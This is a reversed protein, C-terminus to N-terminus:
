LPVGNFRYDDLLSKRKCHYVIKGNSKHCKCCEKLLRGFATMSLTSNYDDIKFTNFLENSSIKGNRDFEYHQNFWLKVPNQNEFFENTFSKVKESEFFNGNNELWTDLLIFFLANRYENQSITDKLTDDRFKENESLTQGEDKIFKFPLEVVKMRRKIAEDNTSLDLLDNLQMMLTFKATFSFTDKHLFRTTIVDRGTWKKLTPVKLTTSKGNKSDEPETAMVIRAFRCSALESNARQNDKEYDTLQNSNISKYYNGYVKKMGTDLLGKGNGGSGTLQAFIENKNEGWLGLSLLSKISKIQYPDDSLSNIIQNWKNIYNEDRTPYDYGCTTIIFDEKVIDRVIGNQLLDICKGDSFSFLNAKADFNDIFENPKTLISQIQAIVGSIFSSNGVERKFKTMEKLKKLFQEEEQKSLKMDNNKSFFYSSYEKVINCFFSSIPYILSIKDNNYSWIRTNKDFIIWGYGSTFFIEGKSYEAYIKALNNHTFDNVIKEGCEIIDDDVFILQPESQYYDKKKYIEKVKDPNDVKAQNVLVGINHDTTRYSNWHKITKNEDYYDYDKKSWEIFQDLGDNSGDTINYIVQGVLSWNSYTVNDNVLPLLKTMTMYDKSKDFSLSKNIFSNDKIKINDIIDFLKDDPQIYSFLFLKDNLSSSSRHKKLFRNQGYKTNGLMRISRNKSYISLDIIFKNGISLYEDFNKMFIKLKETNQFYHNNRVAMHISFKKNSCSTKIAFIEGSFDYNPYTREIFEKRYSKFQEIMSDEGIENYINFMIQNRENKDNEKADLDYCEVVPNNEKLIEMWRRNEKTEQQQLINFEDFNDYSNFVFTTDIIDDSQYARQYSVWFNKTKDIKEM